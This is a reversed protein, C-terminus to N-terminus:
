GQYAMTCVHRTVQSMSSGTRRKLILWSAWEMHPGNKCGLSRARFVVADLQRQECYPMATTGSRRMFPLEGAWEVRRAEEDRGVVGVRQVMEEVLKM